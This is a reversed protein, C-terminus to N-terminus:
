IEIRPAMKHPLFGACTDPVVSGQYFFENNYLQRSKVLGDLAFRFVYQCSCDRFADSIQHLAPLWEYIYRCEDYATVDTYMATSKATYKYRLIKNTNCHFPYALQNLLVDFLLNSHPKDLFQHLNGRKEFYNYLDEADDTYHIKNSKVMQYQTLSKLLGAYDGIENIFSDIKSDSYGNNHLYNYALFFRSTSDNTNQFFTDTTAICEDSPIDFIQKLYPNKWIRQIPTIVGPIDRLVFSIFDGYYSSFNTSIKEQLAKYAFGNLQSHANDFEYLLNSKSFFYQALLEKYSTTYEPEAFNSIIIGPSVLRHYLFASSICKLAHQDSPISGCADIYIIDFKKPTQQFFTEINQKVIRPQRYNECDYVKLAKNYNSRNVEFAWINQPLVGLSVFEDFDNNPEPGCLYCISLDSPRKVPCFSDHLYEWDLICSPNIKLAEVKNRNEDETLTFFDYVKRVYNRNVCPADERKSTLISVAYQIVNHRVINKKHQTYVGTTM